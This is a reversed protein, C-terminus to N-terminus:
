WSSCSIYYKIYITITIFRKQRSNNNNNEDNNLQLLSNGRFRQAGYAAGVFGANFNGEKANINEGNDDEDSENDNSIIPVHSGHRSELRDIGPTLGAKIFPMDNAPRIPNNIRYKVRSRIAFETFRLLSQSFQLADPSNMDSEYLNPCLVVAMNKEDMKNINQTNVVDVTLDLLWEFLSKYPEPMDNKIIQDAEEISSCTIVKKMPIPNLIKIPLDRYWVKIANAICNIYDVRTQTDNANLARKVVPFEKGDPQLRFIGISDLGGKAKLFDKLKVLIQPIRAQYDPFKVTGTIREIPIGFQQGCPRRLEKELRMEIGLSNMMDRDIDFQLKNNKLNNKAGNLLEKLAKYRKNNSHNINDDNDIDDKGDNNVGNNNNGGGRSKKTKKLYHKISNPIKDILSTHHSLLDLYTILTEM